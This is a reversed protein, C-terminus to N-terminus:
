LKEITKSGGSHQTNSNKKIDIDFQEKALDIMKELYDINMQKQGVARELEKVRAELLKIKESQSNKMEVVQISKKNYNSYKYIWSYITANGIDYIREMECVSSQGSEYEQVIKLKFDESFRRQRKIRKESKLM